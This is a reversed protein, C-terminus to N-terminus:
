LCPCLFAMCQHNRSQTKPHLAQALSSSIETSQTRTASCCGTASLVMEPDFNSNGSVLARHRVQCSLRITWFSGQATSSGVDLAEPFCFQSLMVRTKYHIPCFLLLPTCAFLPQSLCCLLKLRLVLVKPRGIADECFESWKCRRCSGIFSVM